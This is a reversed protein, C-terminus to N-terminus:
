GQPKRVLNISHHSCACRLLEAEGAAPTAYLVSNCKDCTFRRTLNRYTDVVPEFDSRTLNAWENYHVATNVQWQDLQSADILKDFEAEEATIETVIGAKGWSQASAKAAKLHRKMKGVANPLLDGLSYQADGRFEVQARLEQCAEKAFHELYNRLLSAASRVDNKKLYAAIEDWADRDDWETPGVSVDWTRFHAFRKPGILGVTKMHRLWIEDHTTLIFQTHPFQERLLKSVERRHSSDVSMLVDDLVAFTFGQGALHNMLALYLCLGMGDQHGESHYAGPPFFGRGYFDVDFGLKGMSPRLHAQFADEDDHNIKRYLESFFEEVNKYIGELAETTVKGYHDFVFRATAARQEAAKLKLSAQRYAELKEQGVSLFDRAADQQSPEPLASVAAELQDLVTVAAAPIATVGSLTDVTADLPLIRRVQDRAQALHAGYNSIEASDIQPSLLGGVRAVSVLAAQLSELTALIPRLKEEAAKRQKAVASFHELKQALHKRFEESKWPTDCVPCAQSDFADLAARLLEERSASKLFQENRRLESVASVAGAVLSVFEPAVLAALTERLQATEARAHPKSVRTAPVAATSIVGDKISTNAELGPIAPLSLLARRENAATLIEMATLRTITLAGRLAAAAGDRVGALTTAEKEATNAIRQLLGRISEVEDLRLLEQVEKARKGPEALVYRILERRSLTFEPHLAVRDLVARVTPSDPDVKLRKADKVARSITVTKNLSPIEVTLTVVAHDPKNRSDVHPGHDRVSLGGTGAGSLRSINGTLVFELADVVGSKGTGNPGCIAFNKGEFHLTLDRIGRFEQIRLTKARIV